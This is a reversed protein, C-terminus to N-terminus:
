RPVARDWEDATGSARISFPLTISSAASSVRREYLYMRCITFTFATQKHLFALHVINALTMSEVAVPSWHVCDFISMTARITILMIPSWHRLRTWGRAPCQSDAWSVLSSPSKPRLRFAMTMPSAFSSAGCLDLRRFQHPCSATCSMCVVSTKQSRM